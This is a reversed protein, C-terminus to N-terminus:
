SGFRRQRNAYDQLAADLDTTTFDPWLKDVFMLEAYAARWLMFGSTRQEGSTRIMLDVPPVDPAYLFHEFTKTTLDAPQIQTSLKKVADIIEQQGGYNFCLLLTGKTNDKTLEETRELAKLVSPSLGDRQGAVLIKIGAKNFTDLYKEVARLLLKMLYGVEDETRSWNETSFVYASLHKVGRQFAALSIEKFVEAGQRHGELTPLGQTKAWRRNGDLILGLHTPIDSM